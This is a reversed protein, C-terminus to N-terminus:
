KSVGESSSQVHNLFDLIYSVAQNFNRGLFGHDTGRLIHYEVHDVTDALRDSYSLPVVSDRSGHIM